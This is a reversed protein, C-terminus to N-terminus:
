YNVYTPDASGLFIRAYMRIIALGNVVFTLAVFLTLVLQNTHIHTFIVDEGIFTPSIPFGSLGLCCLLFLLATKPYHSSHGHFRALDLSNAQQRMWRLCLFGIGGSVVVGSLYYHVQGFDFPENFAIALVVWFHSMMVMVWSMSARNRETFAKLTLVLGLLACLEPIFRSIAYSPLYAQNYLCFLGVSYTVVFGWIARNFNLFDLKRGAWKLPNWLLRYLYSDLNWEKLCLTYITYAMKRPLFREVTRHHTMDTYQQERILYTVVSPSTLLQYTRLCANGVFHLLALTQWGLAIEIFILGIQGISAYAIQSKVASQVRAIGTAIVASAAGILGISLRVTLQHEWMNSTRMLLFAGMHVSLSGYFIASSPTPGEMARPLWSSFPFQASKVAAALLIMLSVFLSVGSHHQIYNDVWNYDVLKSFAINDHWLHHSMWMALLLGVDGMRYVSFVKVANKVPLYRKRYFAILLFSSIGLMEWGIFLTEFNGALATFTYGLFFFLITNFFRKYGDERHLYYRSYITVMFTLFTGLSLFVATIRDFYLAITFHYGPIRYLAWDSESLPIFGGQLWVWFVYSGMLLQLAVSTFAVWSLAGENKPSILLSSIFGALPFIFLLFLTHDM